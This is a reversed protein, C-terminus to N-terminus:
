AVKILDLYIEQTADAALAYIDVSPPTTSDFECWVGWGGHRQGPLGEANYTDGGIGGPRNAAGIPVFRFAICNASIAMGGVIQYKGVPLVQPFVLGVNSWTDAVLATASTCRLTFIEGKVPTLPTDSLGIIVHSDNAAAANNDTLASLGEHQVLALPADPNYYGRPAVAPEAAPDVPQLDPLVFRRLSPSDLRADDVGAGGAYVWVLRNMLGVFTFNGETRHTADAFPACATLAEVAAASVRRYAITTFM